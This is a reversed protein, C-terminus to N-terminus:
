ATATIKNGVSYLCHLVSYMLLMIVIIFGYVNIIRNTTVLSVLPEDSQCGISPSCDWCRLWFYSIRWYHYWSGLYNRIVGLRGKDDDRDKHGKKNVGSHSFMVTVVYRACHRRLDGANRNNAWGDIWLFCWLEVESAKTLPLWRGGTFEGWLPGTVRFINGNSSTM